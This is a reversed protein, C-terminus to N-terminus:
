SVLLHLLHEDVNNFLAFWDLGLVSEADELVVSWVFGVEGFVHDGLAAEVEAEFVLEQGVFDLGDRVDKVEVLRRQHFVLIRDHTLHHVLTDDTRRVLLLQEVRRVWVLRVPALDVRVM